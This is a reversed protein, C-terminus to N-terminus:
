PRYPKELWKGLPWTQGSTFCSDKDGFHGAEGPFRTNEYWEQDSRFQPAYYGPRIPDGRHAGSDPAEHAWAPVHDMTYRHPYASQATAFSIKRTV